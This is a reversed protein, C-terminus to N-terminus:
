QPMTGCRLGHWIGRPVTFKRNFVQLKYGSAFLFAFVVSRIMCLM